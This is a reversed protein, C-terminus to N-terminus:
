KGVILKASAHVENIQFQEGLGFHVMLLWVLTLLEGGKSLQQAHTYGRCHSAAYSLMEVWVKGIIMWKGNELKELDKALVCAEFLVSKSRNGKLIAPNVSTDVQLIRECALKQDLKEGQFHVMAEALTDQWRIKHIGAMASTIEPRVVLLHLMYDSLLKSMDRFDKDDANGEGSNYLLETAIHWLLLSEEYSVENIWRFLHEVGNIGLVWDGRVSYIVKATEIDDAIEAKIQLEYFIFDRLKETFPKSSVNKMNVLFDFLGLFSVIRSIMRSPYHLYYHIFNYQPVSESWRRHVFWRQRSIVMKRIINSNKLAVVSWDSSILMLIAVTDLTMAGLLLAYTIAVDVKHYQKEMLAFRVLAVVVSSFSIFRLFYGLICRVSYAKTYLVEYVLNLEAEIVKFADEPTRRLFFDRVANRERLSFVLDVILAKFIYFYNCACQLVALDSLGSKDFENYSETVIQPGPMLEIRVPLNAQQKLSCLNTITSYNPGPDPEKLMSNRFRGMSALYLARVREVCKVTGALLVLITPFLLKNGLLSLYLIYVSALVQFTFGLSYRIWLENDELSFATIADSGGLHLLLFPAWFALLDGKEDPTRIVSNTILGVVFNASWDAASYAFWIFIIVLTNSTRKRCPALFLLLTQLSLSLLIFGQINWTDWAKKVNSQTLEM